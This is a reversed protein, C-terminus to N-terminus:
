VIADTPDPKNLDDEQRTTEEDAGKKEIFKRLWKIGFTAVAYKASSSLVKLNVPNGKVGGKVLETIVPLLGPQVLDLAVNLVSSNKFPNIQKWIMGKYNEKLYGWSEGLEEQTRGIEMQLREQEYKLSQLNHIRKPKMRNM